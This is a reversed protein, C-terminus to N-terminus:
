EGAKADDRLCDTSSILGERQLYATFDIAQQSTPNYKRVTRCLMKVMMVLNIVVTQPVVPEASAAKELQKIRALLQRVNAPSVAELYDCLWSAERIGTASAGIDNTQESTIAHVTTDPSLQVLASDWQEGYHKAAGDITSSIAEIVENLDTM